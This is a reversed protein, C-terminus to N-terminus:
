EDKLWKLFHGLKSRLKQQVRNLRMRVADAAIGFEAAIAAYDRGELYRQRYMYFENPQLHREIEALLVEIAEGQSIELSPSDGCDAPNLPAPEGAQLDGPSEVRRESQKSIRERKDFIRNRVMQKLYARFQGESNLEIGGNQLRELLRLSLTQGIDESDVHRRMRTDLYPGALLKLFPLYRQVLVQVYRRREEANPAAQLRTRIEEFTLDNQEAPM